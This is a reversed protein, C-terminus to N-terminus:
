LRPREARRAHWFALVQVERRQRALRYFLLYGVRPLLVRRVGQLRQSAAPAGIGPQRAILDLARGLDESVANPSAERHKRWWNDAEEIQRAARSWFIVPLRPRTV